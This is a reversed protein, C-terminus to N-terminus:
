GSIAWDLFDTSNMHAQKSYKCHYCVVNKLSIHLYTPKGIGTPRNITEDEMYVWGVKCELKPHSEAIYIM